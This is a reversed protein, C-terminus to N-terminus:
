AVEEALASLILRARPHMPFTVLSIEWLDIGRLFRGGGPRPDAARTRFGISLGNIRGARLAQAEARASVAVEGHVWLGTEDERVDLWKGCPQGPDHQWLMPATRGAMLSQAFAGRYIIDGRLDPADFIAAYGSFQLAM